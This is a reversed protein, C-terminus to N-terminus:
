QNQHDNEREELGEAEQTEVSAIPWEALIACENALSAQRYQKAQRIADMKEFFFQMEDKQQQTM